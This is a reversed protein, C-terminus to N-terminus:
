KVERISKSIEDSRKQEPDICLLNKFSATCFTSLSNEPVGIVKNHQPCCRYIMIILCYFFLDYAFLVIVISVAIIVILVAM